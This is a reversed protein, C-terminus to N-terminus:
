AQPVSGPKENKRKKKFNCDVFRTVKEGITVTQINRFYNCNKCWGGGVYVTLVETSIDTCKNTMRIGGHGEITESTIKKLSM